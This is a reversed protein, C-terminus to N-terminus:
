EICLVVLPFALVLPALLVTLPYRMKIRYETNTRARADSRECFSDEKSAEGGKKKETTRKIPDIVYIIIRSNAPSYLRTFLPVKVRKNPSQSRVQDTLQMATNM